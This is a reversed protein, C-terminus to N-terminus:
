LHKLVQILAEDSSIALTAYPVINLQKLHKTTTEGWSIVKANESLTNFKLFADVNSPSTFVYIDSPPISVEVFTTKYTPIIVVQDVSLFQAYSQKSLDSVSFGVTSGDVWQAFARSADTVNGSLIPFYSVEFGRDQIYKATSSGACAILETSISRQQVYFDFSRPSAFFLISVPTVENPITVREFSLLSKATYTWGNHDLYNCLLVSNSADKSIFIHRTNDM